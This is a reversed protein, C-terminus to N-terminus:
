RPIYGIQQQLASYSAKPLIIFSDPQSFPNVIRSGEPTTIALFSLSRSHLTLKFKLSRLSRNTERGDEYSELLEDRIASVLFDNAGCNTVDWNDSEKVYDLLICKARLEADEKTM